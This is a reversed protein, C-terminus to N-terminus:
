RAASCPSSGRTLGAVNSWAAETTQLLMLVASLPVALYIVSWPIPVTIAMLTHSRLALRTGQIALEILFFIAVAQVGVAVLRAGRGPIREVALTIAIHNGRRLAIPAGLFCAWIYLYRALEETWVLPANLLYRFGVQLVMTGLIVAFLAVCLRCACRDLAATLRALGAM